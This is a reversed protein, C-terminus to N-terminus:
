GLRCKIEGGRRHSPSLSGEWLDAQQRSGACAAAAEVGGGSVKCPIQNDTQHHAETNAPVRANPLSPPQTTSPEAAAAVNCLSRRTEPQPVQDKGDGGARAAECLVVVGM